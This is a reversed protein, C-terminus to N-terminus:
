PSQKEIMKWLVIQVRSDVYTAGYADLHGGGDRPKLSGSSALETWVRIKLKRRRVTAWQVLKM